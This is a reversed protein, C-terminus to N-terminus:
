ENLLHEIIAVAELVGGESRLREGLEEARARVREDHSAWQVADALKRATLKRRPIPKAGVGLTYVRQGWRPQDLMFPCTVTPKGFRLGAATSGAGGHHVVASVQPFLWDHPAEDIVLVSSPVNDFEMGGWGTAVVGRVNATRLAEVVVQALQRRNTGAISGFGVYVPPEGADLFRVLWEDPSWDQPEAFWFGTVHATDPWDKPRPWLHQSYAHLVQPAEAGEEGHAVPPLGLSERRFANTVRHFGRYGADVLRYSLRNVASGLRLEPLGIAAFEGTPVVLPTPSAVVALIGLKEAISRAGICKPHFVIADPRCQLAAQWIDEQMQRLFSPAQRILTFLPKITAWRGIVGAEIAQSGAPSTMMDVFGNSMPAYAVGYGKVFSAFHQATCLVAEHGASNLGQALAIYPQVDGRSGVTAVLVRVQPIKAGRRFPVPAEPPM